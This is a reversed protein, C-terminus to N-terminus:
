LYSSLNPCSALIGNHITEASVLYSKIEGIHSDIEPAARLSQSIEKSDKGLIKFGLLEATGSVKHTAREIINGNKNEIGERIIVLSEGLSKHFRALMRFAVDESTDEILQTFSTAHFDSRPTMRDMYKSLDTPTENPHM